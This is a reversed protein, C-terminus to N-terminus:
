HLDVSGQFNNCQMPEILMVYRVCGEVSTSEDEDTETKQVIRKTSDVM